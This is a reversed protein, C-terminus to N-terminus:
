KYVISSFRSQTTGFFIYLLSDTIWVEIIQQCFVQLGVNDCAFFLM